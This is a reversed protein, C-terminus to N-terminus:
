PPPRSLWQAICALTRIGWNDSNQLKFYLVNDENKIVCVRQMLTGFVNANHETINPCCSSDSTQIVAQVHFLNLFQGLLHFNFNQFKSFKAAASNKGGFHGFHGLITWLETKRILIGGTTVNPCGGGFHGSNTWIDLIQGAGQSPATLCLIQSEPSLRRYARITM